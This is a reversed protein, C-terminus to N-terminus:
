LERQVCRIRVIRRNGARVILVDTIEIETKVNTIKNLREGVTVCSHPVIFNRAENRSKAFGVARLLDIINIKGSALIVEAINEPDVRFHFRQMWEQEAKRCKDIGHMESVIVEALMVKKNRENYLLELQGIQEKTWDTLSWFWPIIEKDPISMIKSFAQFPEEDVAIYNNLSKGMKKNGDTGRLLDLVICVQPNKGDLRQLERGMLINFMQETGGLEIDARVEISDYGQLLPYILEILNIPKNSTIRTKFDERQLIQQVTTSRLISMLEAFPMSNFWDSNDCVEAKDLDIFKSLHSLYKQKNTEIQDWTLRQRTEDRGSPDGIFATTSGIIIVPKHGLRQFNRLTRLPVTHGLHLDANTPDVGFKVRLQRGTALLEEFENEPVINYVNRKLIDLEKNFM